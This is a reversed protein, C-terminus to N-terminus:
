TGIVNDIMSDAAELSLGGEQCLLSQQKQSLGATQAIYSRREEASMASFDSTKDM